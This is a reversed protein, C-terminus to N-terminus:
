KDWFLFWLLFLLPLTFLCSATSSGPAQTGTPVKRVEWCNRRWCGPLLFDRHDPAGGRSLETITGNEASSSTGHCPCTNSDEWPPVSPPGEDQDLHQPILGTGREIGPEQDRFVPFPLLALVIGRGLCLFVCLPYPQDHQCREKLKGTMLTECRM